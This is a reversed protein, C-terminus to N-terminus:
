IAKVTTEGEPSEFKYAIAWRPHHGTYGLSERARIDDVKVVVGDIEYDRAARERREEELFAAIGSLPGTVWTRHRAGVEAAVTGSTFFGVRPNLRFGLDELEELVEVHTPPQKDFFGEYVFISLPIGAVESSKVRRLTGSALNRPNAYPEEMAANISSFLSRQLFVEGRAAVTVPRSLRLPVAGITKVNGTVDNGV